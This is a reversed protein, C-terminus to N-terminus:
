SFNDDDDNDNIRGLSMCARGEAREGFVSISGMKVCVLPPRLWKNNEIRIKKRRRWLGRNERMAPRAATTACKVARGKVLNYTGRLAPHFSVTHARPISGPFASRPRHCIKRENKTRTRHRGCVYVAAEPVQVFCVRAYLSVFMCFVVSRMSRGVCFTYADQIRLRTTTAVNWIFKLKKKAPYPGQFSLFWTLMNVIIPGCTSSNVCVFNLM